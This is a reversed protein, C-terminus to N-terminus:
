KWSARAVKDYDKKFQTLIPNEKIQASTLFLYIDHLLLKLPWTSRCKLACKFIQAINFELTFTRMINYCIAVPNLILKLMKNLNLLFPPTSFLLKHLKTGNCKPPFSLRCAEDWKKFIYSLCTPAWSNLAGLADLFSVHGFPFKLYEFLKLFSWISSFLKLLRM